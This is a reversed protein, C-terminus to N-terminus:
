AEKSLHPDLADRLGDGVIQLTLVSLSIAIGPFLILYIATDLYQRGENVMIGWTPTEPDVGIGLFSLGAEALMAYAFIFTAQVLIPSVINRLAHTIMIRWTRTGLARAAEVYPMERVVMTSARVIRAVRPAYVISLAIVVNTLTGGFIAVLSLALLIDPFAMMADILRSFPWDLRSFFGATLGIAVGLLASLIAVSLGITLSSRGAYLLRSFVDRGFADSGFWFETGPGQLRMRVSMADPNVPAVLPAFLCLLTIALFIFISVQVSRRTMLVQFFGPEKGGEPKVTEQKESSLTTDTM